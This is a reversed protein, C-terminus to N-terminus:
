LIVFNSDLDNFTSFLKITRNSLDFKYIHGPVAEVSDNFKTSSINLHYDFYIISSSNRFLLFEKDKLLVCAFGGIIKSLNFTTDSSQEIFKLLIYTDWGSLNIDIDNVSIENKIIDLGKNTIIGNHYLYSNNIIAPHIREKLKVLSNTPAQQHALFYFEYDEYCEIIDYNIEGFDKIIEAINNNLVEIVTVSYSFTGRTKNIEVLEKFKEKRYSGIISCM